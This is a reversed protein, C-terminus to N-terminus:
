YMHALVYWGTRNLRNEYQMTGGHVEMYLQKYWRTGDQVMKYWRTGGKVTCTCYRAPIDAHTRESSVSISQVTKLSHPVTPQQALVPQMGPDVNTYFTLHRRAYYQCLESKDM